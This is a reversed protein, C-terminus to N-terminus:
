TIASQTIGNRLFPLNLVLPNILNVGELARELRRNVMAEALGFLVM